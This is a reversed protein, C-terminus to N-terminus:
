LAGRATKAELVKPKAHRARTDPDQAAPHRGLEPPVQQQCSGLLLKLEYLVGNQEVGEGTIFTTAIGKRGARGTRGIRHTYSEIDKPMDYNIVHEVGQIDIGRGVIDTAVLIEYEGSKLGEIALERTAQDKGSHITASPFGQKDLSKALVDCGKKGNCFVIIPPPPGNTLLDMLKEKKQNEKLLIVNQTINEKSSSSDGIYVYAPNRLYTRAIKEVAPPMTASFMYTQRYKNEDLDILAEEDLPKLNSSPMAELIARVQPEFGMDIMRDAEDLVVYNCQGLALYRRDLADNLRGPTAVLVEVGQSAMFSQEEISMGGVVSYVRVKLEAAFKRTEEEIQQVLERTPAMILALPGDPATEKTIPPQKLIYVLMPLVFACTKGSGTKAVGIVDKCALGLPICQMQVGTPKEYGAKRIAALINDPLASEHWHRFPLIRKGTGPHRMNGKTVIEFDERFIRWDRDNMQELPKESYHSSGDYKDMIRDAWSKSNMMALVQQRRADTGAAAIGAGAVEEEYSHDPPPPPVEDDEPPPPPPPPGDGNGPPPPPPVMYGPPPPPVLGGHGHPPPLPPPVMYGPPPPPPPVLGLPPPTGLESSIPMPLAGPPHPPPPMPIRQTEAYRGTLTSDRKSLQERRDIGGRLGRGFLLLAEHKKEYLPNLDTSTDEEAAWDFSFRFKESIKLAKKKKRKVGLYSNKIAELEKEKDVEDKTKPVEEKSRASAVGAARDRESGRESGREGGRARTERLEERVRQMYAQRQEREAEEMLADIETQEEDIAAQQAEREARTLFVPRASEAQQREALEEISMPQRERRKALAAELALREEEDLDDEEEAFAALAAM